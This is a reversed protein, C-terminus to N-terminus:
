GKQVSLALLMRIIDLQAVHAFTKSFDVGSVQAYDKIVLKVKYKNIFGNLKTKDVWNVKVL